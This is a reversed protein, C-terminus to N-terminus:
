GEQAQKLELVQDVKASAVRVAEDDSAGRALESARIQEFVEHRSPSKGTDTM